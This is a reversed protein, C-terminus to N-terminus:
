RERAYAVRGGAYFFNKVVCGLRPTEEDGLAGTEIDVADCGKHLMTLSDFIQAEFFNAFNVVSEEFLNLFHTTQPM